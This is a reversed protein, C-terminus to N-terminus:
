NTSFFSCAHILHPDEQSTYINCVNKTYSTYITVIQQKEGDYQNKVDTKRMQM